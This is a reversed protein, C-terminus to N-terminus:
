AEIPMTPKAETTPKTTMDKYSRNTKNNVHRSERTTGTLRLFERTAEKNDIGKVKAIFDIEDGEGCGTVCKWFLQGDKEFVSFSPNQDDHFPCHASKKVRGGYGMEAMLKPLPLLRKAEQIDDSM